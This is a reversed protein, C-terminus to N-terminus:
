DCSTEAASHSWRRAHATIGIAARRPIPIAESRECHGPSGCRERRVRARWRSSGTRSLEGCGARGKRGAPGEALRGRECQQCFTVAAEQGTPGCPTVWVPPACDWPREWSFSRATGRAAHAAAVLRQRALRVGLAGIAAFQLARVVDAAMAAVVVPALDDGGALRQLARDAGSAPGRRPRRGGKVAVKVSATSAMPPSWAGTM